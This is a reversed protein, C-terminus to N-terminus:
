KNEYTKRGFKRHANQQQLQAFLLKYREYRSNDLAGSAAAKRVACDPEGIHTCMRYQCQPALQVYEDYYLALEEARIDQLDLAGFGPTDAIFTDPALKILEVGTTTNKGRMTKESLDGVQRHGGAIANVLSTKGVASQGAFCSFRGRLLRQLDATDGQAACACVIEDAVGTYQARVRALFGDPLMDTKNVCLVTRVGEKHASLLMKDVTFFDPDPLPALTVIMQDVNAVPPRILRHKRPEIGALVYEGDQTLYVLDGALPNDARKIKKRSKVFVVRDGIDVAFRDSLVRVVRGIM